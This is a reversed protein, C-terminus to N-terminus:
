ILDGSLGFETRTAAFTPTPQPVDDLPDRGGPVSPRRRSTAALTRHKPGVDAQGVMAIAADLSPQLPGAPKIPCTRESRSAAGSQPEENCERVGWRKTQPESM